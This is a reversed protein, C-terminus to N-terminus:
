VEQGQSGAGCKRDKVGQEVSGTRSERSWMEQGQHGAGCKRDKVGQEESETGKPGTTFVHAYNRDWVGQEVSGTRYKRDWV